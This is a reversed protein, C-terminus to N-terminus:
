GSCDKSGKNFYEAYRDAGGYYELYGDFICTNIFNDTKNTAYMIDNTDTYAGVKGKLTPTHSTPMGWQM